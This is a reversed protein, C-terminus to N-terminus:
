YGTDPVNAISYIQSGSIGLDQLRKVVSAAALLDLIAVLICDYSVQLIYEPPLVTGNPFQEGAEQDVWLVLECYGTFDIQEKFARGIAGAGYLVVKSGAKIGAYPFVWGKKIGTQEEKETRFDKERCIGLLREEKDVLPLVDVGARKFLAKAVRPHVGDKIYIGDRNYIRAIFTDGSLGFSSELMEKTVDGLYHGEEDKVFLIRNQNGCIKWYGKQLTDHVSISYDELRNEQKWVCLLRADMESLQKRAERVQTEEVCILIHLASRQQLEELMVIPYGYLKERGANKGKPAIFGELVPNGQFSIVSRYVHMALSDTGYIFVTKGEKIFETIERKSVLREIQGIDSHLKEQIHGDKMKVACLSYGYREKLNEMLEEAADGYLRWLCALVDEVTEKRYFKGYFVKKKIVPVHDLLLSGVPNAYLDCSINRVLADYQYGQGTLANFLGNEFVSCVEDYAFSSSIKERFYFFLTDGKLITKRFVMFYSQIHEVLNKESSTIGWFDAKSGDMQAFIETLSLFPGYFSNNCLILEDCRSIRQRYHEGCIVERYAGADYGANERKIIHRTICDFCSEDTIAGNIIIIIEDTVKQLQQLQRYTEAEM